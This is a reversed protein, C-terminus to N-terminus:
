LETVLVGHYLIFENKLGPQQSNNNFVSQQHCYELYESCIVTIHGSKDGVSDSKQTIFQFTSFRSVVRTKWVTLAGFYAINEGIEM